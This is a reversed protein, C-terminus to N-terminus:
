IVGEAVNYKVESYRKCGSTVQFSGKQVGFPKDLTDDLFAMSKSDGEALWNGGSDRVVDFTQVCANEHIQDLGGQVVHQTCKEAKM